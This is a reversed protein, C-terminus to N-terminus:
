EELLVSSWGPTNETLFLQSSLCQNSGCHEWLYGAAWPPEVISDKVPDVVVWM